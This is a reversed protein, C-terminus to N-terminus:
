HDAYCKWMAALGSGKYGETRGVVCAAGIGGSWAESIARRRWSFSRSRM